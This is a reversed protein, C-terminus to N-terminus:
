FRERPVASTAEYKARIRNMRRVLNEFEQAPLNSCINMLRMRADACWDDFLTRLVRDRRREIPFERSHTTTM